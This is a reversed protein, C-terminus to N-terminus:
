IPKQLDMNKLDSGSYIETSGANFKMEKTTEIEVTKIMTGPDAPNEQETEIWAEIRYLLIHPNSASAPELPMSRTFTWASAGNFEVSEYVLKSLLGPTPLKCEIVNKKNFETNLASSTSETITNIISYNNIEQILYNKM